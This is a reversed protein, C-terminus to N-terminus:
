RHTGSACQLILWVRLHTTTYYYWFHTKLRALEKYVAKYHTNLM